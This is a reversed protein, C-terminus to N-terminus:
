AHVQVHFIRVFNCKAQVWEVRTHRWIEQMWWSLSALFRFTWIGTEIKSSVKVKALWTYFSYLSFVSSHWHSRYTFCRWYTIFISCFGWITSLFMLQCRRIYWYCHTSMNLHINSCPVRSHREALSLRTIHIIVSNQFDRDFINPTREILPFRKYARYLLCESPETNTLTWLRYSASYVYRIKKTNLLLIFMQHQTHM